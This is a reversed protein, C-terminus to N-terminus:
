RVYGLLVIVASCNNTRWEVIGSADTECVVIGSEQGESKVGNAGLDSLDNHRWYESGDGNPRFVCTPGGGGLPTVKLMVLAHNSGVYSSLDLDTWSTPGSGNFVEAGSHGWCGVPPPDITGDVRLNGTIHANGNVELKEDPEPTGIGVYGGPLITLWEGPGGLLSFRGNFTSANNGTKLLWQVGGAGLTELTVEAIAENGLVRLRGSHGAIDLQRDPTTTGIGVRGQEHYINDGDITWDDDPVVPASRAYKATDAELSHFAYSTTVMPKLPTMEPDDQVTVGLYKVSGDFISAPISNVSGLLVSFVGHEVEVQPQTETWEASSGLDDPYISFTLDYNGNVPGGGARTLKGQYNISDPVAAHSSSVPLIWMGFSLLCCVVCVSLLPSNAKARMKGVEQKLNFTTNADRM